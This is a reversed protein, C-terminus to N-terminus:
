PPLDRMESDTSCEAESEQGKSTKRLIFVLVRPGAGMLVAFMTMSTSTAHFDGSMQLLDFTAGLQFM